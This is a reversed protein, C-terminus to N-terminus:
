ENVYLTVTLHTVTTASPPKLNIALLCMLKGEVKAAPSGVSHNLRKSIQQLALSHDSATFTSLSGVRNNRVPSGACTLLCSHAAPSISSKSLTSPRAFNSRVMSFCPFVVTTMSVVIGASTPANFSCIDTSM